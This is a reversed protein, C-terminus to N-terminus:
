RGVDEKVAASKGVYSRYNAAVQLWHLILDHASLVKGDPAALDQEYQSSNNIAGARARERSERM